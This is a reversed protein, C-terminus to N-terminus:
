SSNARLLHNNINEIKYDRKQLKQYRLLLESGIGLPTLINHVSCKIILELWNSFCVHVLKRFAISDKLVMYMM